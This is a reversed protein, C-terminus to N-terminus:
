PTGAGMGAAAGLDAKDLIIVAGNRRNIGYALLRQTVNDLVYLIEQDRTVRGVTITFDGGYSSVNSAQATQPAVNVIILGVFLIVATISLVAIALNKGSANTQHSNM